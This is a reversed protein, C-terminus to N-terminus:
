KTFNLPVSQTMDVPFNRKVFLKGVRLNGKIGIKVNRSMAMAIVKPIDEMSLGSFDSKVKFTYSDESNGRIKVNNALHAKGANVGSITVDMDSKYITFSQKNPNKIKATIDAEVGKQSLKILQMKEIGSFTVEQFDGCSAFLITIFTFVLLTSKQM